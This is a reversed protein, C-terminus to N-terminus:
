RVVVEQEEVAGDAITFARLDPQDPDALSVILYHADPYGALTIDSTCSSSGPEQQPPPGALGSSM